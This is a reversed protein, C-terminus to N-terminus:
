VATTLVHQPCSSLTRIGFTSLLMGIFSAPAALRCGDALHSRLLSPRRSAVVSTLPTLLPWDPHRCCCTRARVTQHRGRLLAYANDATTARNLLLACRCLNTLGRDAYLMDIHHKCRSSNLPRILKPRKQFWPMGNPRSRARPPSARLSLQTAPLPACVHTTHTLTHDNPRM